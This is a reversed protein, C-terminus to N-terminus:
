SAEPVIRRKLLLALVLGLGLLVRLSTRAVEYTSRRTPDAVIPLECFLTGPVGRDKGDVELRGLERGAGDFAVTVGSNTARCFPKGTMLALARTFAVMQDMEFANRYWAENSVVVFMGVGAEGGVDMYARPFANDFCVSAGIRIPDAGGRDLELIGQGEAAAFDPVYGALSKVLNRAWAYREFGYMTEAFPVLIGKAVLPERDPGPNWLAISNRRRLEDDVDDYAEAGSLFATGEPLFELLGEHVVPREWSALQRSMEKPNNEFSMLPDWDPAAFGARAAQMAEDTVLMVFLMSEGWLVLDVQRGQAAERALADLTLQRQAEFNAQADNRMKREQTFAPQVSLTSLTQGELTPAPTAPLFRGVVLGVVSLIAAARLAVSHRQRAVLGVGAAAVAAVVVTAGELGAFPLIGRWADLGCHGVRLWGLGFPTVLISRLFELAVFGCFAGLVPGSRRAVRRAILGSVAAYLGQGIGPYLFGFPIVYWIWIMPLAFGYCAAGWEILFAKRQKASKSGPPRIVTLSWLFAGLVALFASGDAFLVGPSALFYCTWAGFLRGFRDRAELPAGLDIVETRVLPENPPLPVTQTM